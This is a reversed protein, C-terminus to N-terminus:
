VATKAPLSISTPLASYSCLFHFVAYTSLLSSAYQDAVCRQANVVNGPCVPLRAGRLQLVVCVPVHLRRGSEADINPRRDFVLSLKRTGHKVFIPLSLM